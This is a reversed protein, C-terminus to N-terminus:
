DVIAEEVSLINSNLIEIAKDLFEDEGNKVGKITKKVHVTPQIGSRFHQSGDHKVVKMGTWAYMYGGPLKTSNINGNTGATPQGVIKGLDYHEIFGMFSEAYSIARADTIFVVNGRIHPQQPERFWGHEQYGVINNQDPYILQPIQMWRSSTDPETLLHNIVQHNGNPYGRLDFIVGKSSAITEMESNIQDMSARDLDVYFIGDDLEGMVPLHAKKNINVSSRAQRRLTYSEVGNEKKVEIMVETDSKGNGFQNMTRYLSLQPSGPTLDQIEKVIEDSSKDDMSLIIDGPQIDPHISHTVVAQDEIWEVFFPLRGDTYQAPHYLRIHGDKTSALMRSLTEFFEDPTQDSLSESLTKNLQEEWDVDVVDFYPYFHQLEAWAIIINALRLSVDDATIFDLDISDLESKLRELESDPSKPYTAELNGFLVLPVESWLGESIKQIATEGPEPEKKFLRVPPNGHRNAMYFSYEGDYSHDSAVSFDYNGTVTSRWGVPRGNTHNEFGPNLVSVPEWEGKINKVELRVTDVWLKGDGNLKIGASVHDADDTLATTLTLEKWESTASVEDADKIFLPRGETDDIRLYLGGSSNKNEIEAKISATYRIFNGKISEKNFRQYLFFNRDVAKDIRYRRVSSYVSNRQELNVGLHQWFVPFLDASDQSIQELYQEKFSTKNPKTDSIRVTPAIPLFLSDLTSKLEAHNKAETIERVGAIAFKDWDIERSEDSPHFYKVHGYLKAFAALNNLEQNKSLSFDSEQCGLFACLLIVLGIVIYRM